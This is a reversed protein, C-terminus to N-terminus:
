KRLVVLKYMPTMENVRAIMLRVNGAVLIFRNSLILHLILVPHKKAKVEKLIRDYTNVFKGSERMATKVQEEDYVKRNTNEIKYWLDDTMFQKGATQFATELVNYSTFINLDKMVKELAAREYFSEKAKM